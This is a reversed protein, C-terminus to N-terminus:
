RVRKNMTAQLCEAYLDLFEKRYNGTDKAGLDEMSAIRAALIYAVAEPTQATDSM